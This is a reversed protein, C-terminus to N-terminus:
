KGSEMDALAKKATIAFDNYYYKGTGRRILENFTDIAIQLQAKLTEIQKQNGLNRAVEEHYATQVIDYVEIEEGLTDIQTLLGETKLKLGENFQNLKENEKELIQNQSKLQEIENILIQESSPIAIKSGTIEHFCKGCYLTSNYNVSNGIIPSNCKQCKMKWRLM